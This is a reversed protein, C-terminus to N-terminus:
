RSVAVLLRAMAGSVTRSSEGPRRTHEANSPRRMPPERLTM